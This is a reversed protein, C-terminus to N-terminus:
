ARNQRAFRPYRSFYADLVVHRLDAPVRYADCVMQHLDNVDVHRSGFCLEAFRTLTGSIEDFQRPLPFTRLWSIHVQPLVDRTEGGDLAYYLRALPSNLIVLLALLDSVNCRVSRITHVSNLTVLRQDLDLGVILTDATQRSVLKPSEFIAADRLSAGAAKDSPSLLNTDYRILAGNWRVFWGDSAIDRGEILRRTLPEVSTVDRLLRDRVSRPGPNVGDRVEFRRELPITDRQLSSWIRGEDSSRFFRIRYNDVAGEYDTSEQTLASLSHLDEAISTSLLAPAHSLVVVVNRVTAGFAASRLLCWQQRKYLGFCYERVRDYSDSTAYTDPVIFALSGGSRAIQTGRIIFCTFTNIRGGWRGYLRRLQDETDLHESQRSYTAVYPPNTIVVDFGGQEFVESFEVAWDFGTSQPSPSAWDVIQNRLGEIQLKLAVKESGHAMLYDAKTQFFREIQERRFMDVNLGGSPNPGVLSDGVEIKFDLNPLPLPAEGEFDVALSLWLRLRAINVAFPDLDVGYLNNQIIELKRQYVSLPDIRRTAFLCARLELLEHLMGLLYAGSGCAPDVVKVARLAELAAEPDRLGAGDREDVFRAVAAADEAPLSVQLYGKLAERCMFSVVPKPTYYSGTEHRGTVLEEFVSGLMEPDVAVEVDLPTSETVTFNFRDFLEGLIFALCEDPVVVDPNHDDADEEFLGGNLYPVRGIVAEVAGGSRIGVVDVENPTNLGAFFLMRLRDRYFNPETGTYDRQAARERQYAQWLASLYDTEGAYKLWGKKQIFAIFMLRNFLRQTFLRKRDADAFGAIRGEVRDFVRHYEEFFKQTVAEVNFALDHQAQIALPSLGLLDGSMAAIDLLAMREAATRLRENPGVAIRRQIRRTTKERDPRVNVFHWHRETPDSFVFLAYPHDPLLQGIVQREASLSLPFAWSAGKAALNVFIVDFAGFASQHRALLLPPSALAARTAAPWDRESLPQNVRDYNLAAWFLRKAANLGEQPLQVLLDYVHQTTEPPVSSKRWSAAFGLASFAGLYFRRQGRM